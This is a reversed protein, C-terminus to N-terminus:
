VAARFAGSSVVADEVRGRSSYAGHFTDPKLIRLTERQMTVARQLLMANQRAGRRVRHILRNIEEVLAGLLPQVDPSFLPLLQRLTSAEDRGHERALGRVTDERRRRAIATTALQTDIQSAIALVADADRRLLNAQQEEFLALLGGYEQLEERLCEAITEWSTNM